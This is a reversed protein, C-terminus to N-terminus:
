GSLDHFQQWAFSCSLWAIWVLAATYLSVALTWFIKGPIRFGRSFWLLPLGLVGTAGFLILLVVWPKHFMESTHRFTGRITKRSTDVPPSVIWEGSEKSEACTKKM